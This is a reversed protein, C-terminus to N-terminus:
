VRPHCGNYCPEVVAMVKQGLYIIHVLDVIERNSGVAYRSGLIGGRACHAFDSSSLKPLIEHWFKSNETGLSFGLVYTDDDIITPVVNM